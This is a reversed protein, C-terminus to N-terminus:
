LNVFSILDTTLTTKASESQGAQAKCTQDKISVTYPLEQGDDKVVFVIDADVGQAKEAVFREEFGQFIRDLTEKTGVSHIAEAVQEDSASNVLEAFQEPSLNAADFTAQGEAM